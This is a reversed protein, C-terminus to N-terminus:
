HAEGERLLRVTTDRADRVLKEATAQAVESKGDEIAAFLLRWNRASQARRASTSLGLRTYRLTQHALAFVTKRLFPNGSGDALMLNARYVANTFSDIDGQRALESIYEVVKRFRAIFDGDRRESALRACLGILSIRVEFLDNVEDVNLRTVRAGRRAHIQVLGDRELIRLAERVPARSAQFQNAIEQEPIGTGPEYRGEIIANGVAQAIQEPLSLTQAHPSPSWAYVPESREDGLRPEVVATRASSM